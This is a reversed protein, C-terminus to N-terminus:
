TQSKKERHSPQTCWLMKFNGQFSLIITANPRTVEEKSGRGKQPQPQKGEKSSGGYSDKEEKPKDADFQCTLGV